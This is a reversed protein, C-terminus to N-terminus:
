QYDYHEFFQAKTNPGIKWSSIKDNMGWYTLNPHDGVTFRHHQGNYNCHEWVIIQGEGPEM